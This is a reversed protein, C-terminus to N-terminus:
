QSSHIKEGILYNFPLMNSKAIAVLLTSEGPGIGAM